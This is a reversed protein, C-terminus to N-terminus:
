WDESGDSSDKSLLQQIEQRTIDELRAADRDAPDGRVIREHKVTLDLARVADMANGIEM